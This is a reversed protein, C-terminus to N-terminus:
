PSPSCAEDRFLTDVLALATREALALALELRPNDPVAPPLKPRRWPDGRWRQAARGAARQHDRARRYDALARTARNAAALARVREDWRRETEADAQAARALPEAAAVRALAVARGAPDVAKLGVAFPQDKDARRIFRGGAGKVPAVDAAHQWRRGRNAAAAALGRPKVRYRKTWGHKNVYTYLTRETVGAISAIERVPVSTTEYLARIRATLDPAASAGHVASKEGGGMQAAFPPSPNPTPPAANGFAATAENLNVAKDAAMDCYNERALARVSTRPTM